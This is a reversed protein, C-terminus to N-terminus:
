AVPRAAGWRGGALTPSRRRITLVLGVYLLVAAGAQAHAPLPLPTGAPLTQAVAAPDVGSSASKGMANDWWDFRGSWQLFRPQWPDLGSVTVHGQGAAGTAMVTLDDALIRRAGARPSLAVIDVSGPPGVGAPMKVPRNEGASAPAIAQLWPPVPSSTRVVILLRGGLQVWTMLADEQSADLSAPDLDRIVALDIAAYEQWRRPLARGAVYA